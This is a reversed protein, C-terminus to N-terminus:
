MVHVGRVLGGPLKRGSYVERIYMGSAEVGDHPTSQSLLAEQFCQAVFFKNTRGGRLKISINRIGALGCLEYLLDSCTLGWGEPRPEMQMQLRHFTHRVSHYVTHGRYLPVAALRNMSDLHARAVALQATEAIGIGLGLLGKMNGSAVMATYLEEKGEKRGLPRASRRVDVLVRDWVGDSGYMAERLEPPLVPLAAASDGGGKSQRTFLLRATATLDM